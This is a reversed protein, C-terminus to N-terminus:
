CSSGGLGVQFDGFVGVEAASRRVWPQRLEAPKPRTTSNNPDPALRLRRARDSTPRRSHRPLERTTPLDLGATTAIRDAPASRVVPVADLTRRLDHNLDDIPNKPAHPYPHPPHRAALDSRHHRCREHRTHRRTRPGPPSQRRVDAVHDPRARRACRSRLARGLGRQQPCRQTRRGRDRRDGLTGAAILRNRSLFRLKTPSCGPPLESVVLGDEVIRSFLASNSKPYSVDVGCALVAVTLGSAALAGRHAAADIGYAGGSVVTVGNDALGSSLEAAVHEGYSSCARAGVM